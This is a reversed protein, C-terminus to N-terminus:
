NAPAPGLLLNIEFFLTGDALTAFTMVKGDATEWAGYGVNDVAQNDGSMGGITAFAALDIKSEPDTVNGSCYGLRQTKYTDTVARFYAEGFGDFVKYGSNVVRFPGGEEFDGPQWGADAARVPAEPDGSAVDTCVDFLAKLMVAPDVAPGTEESSSLDESSPMEMSSSRSLDTEM